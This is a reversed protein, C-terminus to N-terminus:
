PQQSEVAAEEKGWEVPWWDPRRAVVQLQQDGEAVQLTTQPSLAATLRIYAMGLDGVHNTLTGVSSVRSKSTIQGSVTIPLPCPLGADPSGPLPINFTILLARFM